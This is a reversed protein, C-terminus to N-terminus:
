STWALLNPNSTIKYVLKMKIIDMGTVTLSVHDGAAAWDLPEDHLTIGKVTCTENPPM